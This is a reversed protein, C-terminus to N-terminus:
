DHLLTEKMGGGGGDAEKTLNPPPREGGSREYAEMNDLFGKLTGTLGLIETRRAAVEAPPLKEM